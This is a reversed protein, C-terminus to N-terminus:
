IKLQGAFIEKSPSEHIGEPLAKWSLRSWLFNSKGQEHEQTPRLGREQLTQQTNLPGKCQNPSPNHRFQVEASGLHNSRECAARGSISCGEVAWLVGLVLQERPQLFHLWVPVLLMNKVRLSYVYPKLLWGRSYSRLIHMWLSFYVLALMCVNFMYLQRLGLKVMWGGWVTSDVTVPVLNRSEWVFIKRLM